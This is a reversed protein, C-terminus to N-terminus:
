EGSTYFQIKPVGVVGASMMLKKKEESTISAKAKAMDKIDFVLQVINPDEVGRALAVDILGQAARGATGEGDFVKLWADFDKVKHTVIVWQKEKSDPNLRITHFFEMTPKSIVGNKKMVDKLRPSAGFDKAKQIDSVSLVILLSNPNNISRGVVIDTLGSAKRMTSDANFAPRWKAYDKVTHAIEVVDFPTFAPPPPPAPKAAITDTAKTTDKAPEKATDASNNCSCITIAFFAAMFSKFIKNM